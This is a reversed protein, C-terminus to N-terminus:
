GATRYKERLSRWRRGAERSAEAFDAPWVDYPPRIPGPRCYGAEEIRTKELQINYAAFYEPNGVIPQLPEGAWALDKGIAARAEGDGALLARVLALSPEPGMSASTSWIATTADPALSVFQRLGGENPLFNVRGRVVALSEDLREFRSYKAATLSPVDVVIRQWFEPPFEFRFARPNGYAMIALNGAADAVTRYFAVAGELSLPQWMPLGLLIGDAGRERAFRTRRVIEHTGLATTGVFAPVRKGVTALVCDVFPEFEAPTLTAAEGTTGLICLGHVGDRILAEVLRATEDLDVTDVADWREAGAKAPTPIFAYLGRYDRASLM